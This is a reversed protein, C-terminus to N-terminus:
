SQPTMPVYVPQKYVSLSTYSLALEVTDWPYDYLYIEECYGIENGNDDFRNAGSWRNFSHEGGEPDWYTGEFTQGLSQRELPAFLSVEVFDGTRTVEGVEVGEPLGPCTKAALDLFVHTRDKELWKM